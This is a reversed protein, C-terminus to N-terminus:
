ATEDIYRRRSNTSLSWIQLKGPPGWSGVRLRFGAFPTKCGLPIAIRSVTCWQFDWGVSMIPIKHPHFLVNNTHSVPIYSIIGHDGTITVHDHYTYRKYIYHIAHIIHWSLRTSSILDWEIRLFSIIERM